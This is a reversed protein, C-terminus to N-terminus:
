WLNFKTGWKNGLQNEGNGFPTTRLPWVRPLETESHKYNTRECATTKDGVPGIQFIQSLLHILRHGTLNYLSM